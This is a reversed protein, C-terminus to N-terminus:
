GWAKCKYALAGKALPSDLEAKDVEDVMSQAFPPNSQLFANLLDFRRRRM